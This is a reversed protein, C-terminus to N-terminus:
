AAKRIFGRDVGRLINELLDMAKPSLFVASHINKKIIVDTVDEDFV